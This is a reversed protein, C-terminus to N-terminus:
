AIRKVRYKRNSPETGFKSKRAPVKGCTFDHGTARKVMAATARVSAENISGLPWSLADGLKLEKLQQMLPKYIKKQPIDDKGALSNDILKKLEQMDSLTLHMTHSGIILAYLKGNHHLEM